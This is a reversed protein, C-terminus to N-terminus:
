SFLPTSFYRDGSDPLLAVLTKLANEPRNLLRVSVALAAGSTIGAMIGETRALTRAAAYADEETVTLVEDVVDPDYNEPVFNAGIGQLGHAGSEGATILPSSAPEFGVVHVSAKEQKLYRATGSVTGGTGIGAVFIDVKGNTQALIEPGTTEFHALPNSPNDFQAPIFSNKTEAALKEARDIASQMGDAGPTLVIQAGYGALIKRREASMTEPMTLIVTYGRAAALAALAIGTNGSTPEIITSGPVLLGDREADEIMKLAARDKASGTPNLYELKLLPAAALDYAAAFRSARLLPTGGVLESINETITRQNM